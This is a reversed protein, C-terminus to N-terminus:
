TIKNQILAMSGCMQFYEADQSKSLIDKVSNERINGFIHSAFPCPKINGEPDIYLFLKGGVCGRKSEWADPSYTLPLRLCKKQNEKTLDALKQYDDFDFVSFTEQTCKPTYCNIFSVGIEGAFSVFKDFEKKDLMEKSFVTNVAVPMGIGAAAKIASQADNFAHTNGKIKNVYESNYSDLSVMIGSLGKKKLLKLKEVSTLAGTTLLWFRVSKNGYTDLIKLVDDWRMMPEGGSLYINSIGSNVLDNITKLIVDLPIKEFKEHMDSNYCYSCRHPCKSTICFIVFLPIAKDKGLLIKMDRFLYDNFLSTNVPPLDPVALINNGNKIYRNPTDKLASQKNQLYSILFNIGKIFGFYSVSKKFLLFIIRVDILFKSFGSIYINDAM